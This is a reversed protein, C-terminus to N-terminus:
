AGTSNKQVLAPQNSVGLHLGADAFVLATTWHGSLLFVFVLSFVFAFTIPWPSDSPMDLVQDLKGDVVTTAPTEHGDAYVIACREGTDPDVFSMVDRTEDEHAMDYIRARVDVIPKFAPHATVDEVREGDIWVQRADRISERYEDGTRIM